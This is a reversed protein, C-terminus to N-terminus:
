WIAVERQLIRTIYSDACVNIGALGRQGLPNQKIGAHNVPYTFDM